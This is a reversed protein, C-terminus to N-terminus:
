QKVRRLMRKLLERAKGVDMSYRGSVALELFGKRILMLDETRLLPRVAVGEEVEPFMEVVLDDVVDVVEGKIEVGEGDPTGVMPLQKQQFLGDEKVREAVLQLPSIGKQIEEEVDHIYLMSTAINDHQLLAKVALVNKTAEAVISASSHRLTHPGLKEGSLGARRCIRIVRMSLASSSLGFVLHDDSGALRKLVQCIRRDLRYRRQGTKERVNIFGDGVDGGKLGELGGVRCTSDVLTLILAFDIESKCAQLIKVLEEAKLYRRQRKKVKPTDLGKFPNKVEYNSELYEFGKRLCTFWLRVTQDAYGDLTVLWKNVQVPKTPLETYMKALSGFAAKYNSKSHEAMRKGALVENLAEITKVQVV